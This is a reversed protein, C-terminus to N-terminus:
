SLESGSSSIGARMGGTNGVPKWWFLTWDWLVFTWSPGELPSLIRHMVSFIRALYSSGM